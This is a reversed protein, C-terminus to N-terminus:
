RMRGFSYFHRTWYGDSLPTIQVRNGAAHIMLGDGIYMAAHTVKNRSSYTRTFFLLDGVRLEERSIPACLSYLSQASGRQYYAKGTTTYLWHIYGSCDFAYPGAAGMVYPMGIRSKALQVLDSNEAMKKAEDEAQLKANYEMLYNQYAKLFSSQTVQQSVQVKATVDKEMGYMFVSSIEGDWEYSINLANLIEALPLAIGKQETIDASLEGVEKGAYFIKNEPLSFRLTSGRWIFLGSYEKTDWTVSIGFLEELLSVPIYTRGDLIYPSLQTTKVSTDLLYEEQGISILLSHEEEKVGVTKRLQENHQKIEDSMANAISGFWVSCLLVAMVLIIKKM